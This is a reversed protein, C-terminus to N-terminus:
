LFINEQWFQSITLYRMKEEPIKKGPGGQSQQHLQARGHDDPSVGRGSLGCEGGSCTCVSEVTSEITSKRTWLLCCFTINFTLTENGPLRGPPRAGVVQQRRGPQQQGEGRLRVAGHDGRQGEGARGAAGGHPGPRLHGAAAPVQGRLPQVGRLRSGHDGGAAAPDWCKNWWGLNTNQTTILFTTTNRIEYKM